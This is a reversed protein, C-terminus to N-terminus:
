NINYIKMNVIANKILSDIDINGESNEIDVLRPKTVPHKPSFLTCC